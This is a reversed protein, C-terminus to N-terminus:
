FAMRLEILRGINGDIRCISINVYGVSVAVAPDSNEVPVSFEQPLPSMLASFLLRIRTDTTRKHLNHVGYGKPVIIEYVNAVPLTIPNLYESTTVASASPLVETWIVVEV